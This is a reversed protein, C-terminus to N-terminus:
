ALVEGSVVLSRIGDYSIKLLGYAVTVMAILMMVVWNSPYTPIFVVLAFLFLTTLLRNMSTLEPM